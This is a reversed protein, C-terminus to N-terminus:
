REDPSRRAPQATAGDRRCLSQLDIEEASRCGDGSSHRAAVVVSHLATASFFCASVWIGETAKASPRPLNTTHTSCRARLSRNRKRHRLRTKMASSSAADSPDHDKGLGRHRCRSSSAQGIVLARYLPERTLTLSFGWGTCPVLWPQLVSSHEVPSTHIVPVQGHPLGLRYPRTPSSSGAGQM